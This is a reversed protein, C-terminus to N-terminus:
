RRHRCLRAAVSGQRWSPSSRNVYPVAFPLSVRPLGSLVILNKSVGQLNKGPVRSVVANSKLVKAKTKSICQLLADPPPFGLIGEPISPQAPKRGGAV